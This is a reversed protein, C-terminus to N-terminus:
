DVDWVVVDGLAGGAAARMGDAAFAVCLVKGIEWAFSHLPAGTRGDHFRVVGDNNSTALFRGDPSFAMDTYFKKSTERHILAWSQMEWLSLSQHGLVALRTGDPSFGVGDFYEARDLVRSRMKGTATDWLAVQIRVQSLVSLPHTSALTKGDPSVALFGSSETRWSMLEVGNGVHWRRIADHVAAYLTGGDPSLCVGGVGRAQGSLAETEGTMTTAGVGGTGLPNHSWFIRAGDSAWALSM